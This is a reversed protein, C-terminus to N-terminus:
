RAIKYLHVEYPGFDDQFAGDKAELTRGEGIVEIKGDPLAKGRFSGTTKSSRMNVAFLYTAGGHKKLLCDVQGGESATAAAGGAVTPSNIVPALARVQANIEKLAAMMEKDSVLADESDDGSSGQGHAYYTIGRSGHIISMWVEAKTIAPPPKPAGKYVQTAEVFNWVIKKGGGWKLLNDVGLPVFEIKGKVAAAPFTYAYLDFSVIDCGKMYEPYDEVKGRRYGRGNYDKYAVGQGLNLYVPRTPDAAVMKQYEAIIDKPPIPPGFTGWQALTRNAEPWARRIAAEDNKWYDAVTQANDPEDPQLWGVIIPDDKHKLAAETQACIVPMNLAKFEALEKESPGKWIGIVLNVGADQFQRVHKAPQLWVAIPFYNPDKPPGNRWQAYPSDAELSASTAPESAQVGAALLGAVTAVTWLKMSRSM